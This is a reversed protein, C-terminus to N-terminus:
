CRYGRLSTSVMLNIFWDDSYKLNSVRQAPCVKGNHRKITLPSSPSFNYVLAFARMYLTAKHNDAHFYQANKISKKMLKMIRDLMNSTRYAKQYSYFVKWYRSKDCLELVKNKMPSESMERIAWEKLRRIQQAFARLTKARYANWIRDAAPMFDHLNKKTQRHRVKIFAHLFCQVIACNYIARLAAQTATWGDTNSTKVEHGPNVNWMEQAAVEYAAKLQEENAKSVVEAGLLCGQSVTTAIYAKKGRVYTHEEDCLINEPLDQASRLTTGIVSNRGFDVWLRYWFMAYKGFIMAIAWFPVGFKMLFVGGKLETTKGRMYFTVFAPHIRFIVGGVKIRRKKLGMKKSPRETGKLAYGGKFIAEPFLKHATDKEIWTDILAKAYKKDKIFIAYEKEPIDLIITRMGPIIRKKQNNKCM